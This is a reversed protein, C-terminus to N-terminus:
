FPTIRGSNARRVHFHNCIPMSMGSIMVLVSSSSRLLTLTSSRLHGQVALISSELSKKAIEPQSGCKLLSNRWFPQLYVLVIQM